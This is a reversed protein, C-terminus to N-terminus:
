FHVLKPYHRTNARISGHKSVKARITATGIQISLPCALHTFSTLSTNSDSLLSFAGELPERSLSGRSAGELPERSLSGRSAGELPEREHGKKV